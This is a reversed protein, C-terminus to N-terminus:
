PRLGMVVLEAPLGFQGGELIYTVTRELNRGTYFGMPRGFAYRVRGRAGRVLAWERLWLVDAVKFGRDDRRVEFPKRGDHLAEFQEPWCKLEHRM